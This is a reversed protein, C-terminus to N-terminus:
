KELKIYIKFSAGNKNNEASIDGKFSNIMIRKSISLGIGSGKDGKTTFREDFIKKIIESDIGGANDKITIILNNNDKISSVEINKNEFHSNEVFKDLANNIINLVVQCFESKYGYINIEKDIKNNIHIQNKKFKFYLIKTIKNICEYINFDVKIKNPALFRRFDDATDVMFDINQNINDLYDRKQEITLNHLEEDFELAQTTAKIISLPQKWQHIINDIMNGMEALKAKETLLKETDIRKSVEEFVKQELEENLVKMATIDIAVGLIYTKNFVGLFSLKIIKTDYYLKKNNKLIVIDEFEIKQKKIVEDDRKKCSYPLKQHEFDYSNKGILEERSKCGYLKTLCNNVILFVGKNDKLCIPFPINNILNELIRMKISQLYAGLFIFPLSLIFISIFFFIIERSIKDMYKKFIEEKISYIIYFDKDTINIKDLYFTWNNDNFRKNKVLSKFNEIEDVAKYNTKLQTSWNKKSEPHLLFNKENDIFYVNFDKKNKIHNILDNALFNIILIGKLKDNIYIPTGVRITAKFPREIENNEVNLDFDSIYFEGKKLKLTQQFYYRKSKDQFVKAAYVKNKDNKEIRIIELGSKDIYRLQFINKNAKTFDIYDEVLYNYTNQENNLFRELDKNEKLANLILKYHELESTLTEQTKQFELKAIDLKAKYLSENQENKLFFFVIIALVTNIIGITSIFLITNKKTSTLYSM